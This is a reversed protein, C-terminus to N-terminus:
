KKKAEARIKRGRLKASLRNCARCTRMNRYLITNEPTYEHGQPCHTQWGNGTIRGANYSDLMNQSRNGEYIHDPNICGRNNCKHLAFYGDQIPRGLKKELVIRATTVTKGRIKTCHPKNPNLPCICNTM